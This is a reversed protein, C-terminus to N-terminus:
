VSKKTTKTDTITINSVFDNLTKAKNIVEQESPFPPYGPHKPPEQGNIKATECDTSWQNSISERKGFYDDGLMDRAMKLLELRIEFATMNSM